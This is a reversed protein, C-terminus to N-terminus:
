HRDLPEAPRHPRLVLSVPAHDVSGITHPSDTLILIRIDTDLRAEERLQPPLMNARLSVSSRFDVSRECSGFMPPDLPCHNIFRQGTWAVTGPEYHGM